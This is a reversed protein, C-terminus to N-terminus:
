LLGMNVIQLVNTIMIESICLLIAPEVIQLWLAQAVEAHLM